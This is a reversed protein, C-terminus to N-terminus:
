TATWTNTRCFMSLQAPGGMIIHRFSDGRDQDSWLTKLGAGRRRSRRHNAETELRTDYFPSSKKGRVHQAGIKYWLKNRGNLLYLVSVLQVCELKRKQRQTVCPPEKMFLFRFSSCFGFSPFAPLHGPATKPGWFPPQMKPQIMPIM